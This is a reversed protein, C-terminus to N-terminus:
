RMPPFILAIPVAPDGEPVGGDYTATVPEGTWRYGQGLEGVPDEAPNVEGESPSVEPSEVPISVTIKLTVRVSNGGEKMTATYTKYILASVSNGVLTAASVIQYPSPPTIAAVLTSGPGATPTYYAIVISDIMLNFKVADLAERVIESYIGTFPTVPAAALMANRSNITAGLGNSPDNLFARVEEASNFFTTPIREYLHVHGMLFNISEAVAAPEAATAETLRGENAMDTEYQELDAEYQELDAEYQAEEAHYRDLVSQPLNRGAPREPKVPKEPKVPGEIAPDVLMMGVEPAVPGKTVGYERLTTVHLLGVEGNTYTGGRIITNRSVHLPSEILVPEHDKSVITTKRARILFKEGADFNIENQTSMNIQEGTINVISGYMDIPGFTKINIGKAGVLLKYKNTATQIYNGGPVDVVDVSEVHPGPKGAVYIKEPAVFVSEARMKGIPDVRYSMSDNMVLGVSEIKNKHIESIVDGGACRALLKNLDNNIQNYYKFMDGGAQKAPELEFLGHETSTNFGPRRLAEKLYDSNCIDCAAGAHYGIGPPTDNFATRTALAVLDAFLPLEEPLIPEYIVTHEPGPVPRYSLVWTLPNVEYPKNQCEPCKVFGNNYQTDGYDKIGEFMPKQIQYPSLANVGTVNLLNQLGTTRQYIYRGVRQTDFLQKYENIKNLIEKIELAAGYFDTGVRTINDGDVFLRNDGTVYTNKSRRVTEFQDGLVLKQDNNSAFESTTYNNWEKFSGSFHTLKIMERNDTDILEIVNKNTNIVHKARFTKSESTINTSDSNEYDGPYDVSINAKKLADEGLPALAEDTFKVTTYIRKYDAQSYGSAWYVPSNRDGNEFFVWVHAGVNPVTFMGAALSSYDSPDYEFAYPNFVETKNADNFADHLSGAGTYAAAPRSGQILEDNNWVSTNSTYVRKKTSNYRGSANGGFLPGAVEAWPLVERLEALINAVDPDELNKFLKDQEIETWNKYIGYSVHPIFVKVRGRKEPDNNQVVLALYNGLYKESISM